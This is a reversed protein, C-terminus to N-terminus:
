KRSCGSIDPQCKRSPIIVKIVEPCLPSEGVSAELLPHDYIGGARVDARADILIRVTELEGARSAGCLPTRLTNDRAEICYYCVVHITSASAQYHEIGAEIM